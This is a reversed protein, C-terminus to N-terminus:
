AVRVIRRNIEEYLGGADTPNPWRTPAYSCLGLFCSTTEFFYRSLYRDPIAVISVQAHPGHACVIIPTSRGDARLGLEGSLIDFREEHPPHIHDPGTTWGLDGIWDVRLLEDNTERATKRFVTRLGTISNVLEDDAKAM